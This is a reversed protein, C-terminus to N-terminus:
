VMTTVFLPTSGTVPALTETGTGAPTVPASHTNAPPLPLTEPSVLPMPARAVVTSRAFPSLTM